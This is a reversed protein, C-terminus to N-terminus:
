KVIIEKGGNRASEHAAFILKLNRLADMGTLRSGEKISLAHKEIVQQYINKVDSLTIEESNKKDNVVIRLKIPEDEHGSLQFLTGYTEVSKETGYVEYGLNSFTSYLNGRPDSFSVRISGKIGSDTEFKIFAGDEVIIDLVKPYYVAKVSKIKEGLLYEAMYFCHSAVDGIPGGMEEPKSCRWTKAEEPTAGYLFEMHLVIDNINGLEGTKILERVKENYSNYVMMHDVELSLGKKEALKILDEADEIKTSIPKEVIVHKGSELAKKALPYHTSNNTAIFVADIEPDSFIEDSNDYWKLGLSEAAEKRAPNIDTTGVLEANKLPEFREKDLAFGEKAIRSEAIGGFGILGYRIKGM